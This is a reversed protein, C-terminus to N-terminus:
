RGELLPILEQEEYALHAELETALRDVEAGLEDASVSVETDAGNGREAGHLATATAQYTFTGDEVTVEPHAILNHYWAPHHPTGGASAIVLVQDGDPLYGVPTTHPKSSRAGTTTLLLLRAGGFWGGVKGDNARFEDIVQQNFDNQM